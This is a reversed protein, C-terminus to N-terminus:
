KYNEIFEKIEKDFEKKSKSKEAESLSHYTEDLYQYRSTIEGDTIYYITPFWTLELFNKIKDYYEIDELLANDKNALDRYEKVDLKVFMAKNPISINNLEEEFVTCDSCDSRGVYLIFSVKDRFCQEVEEFNKSLINNDISNQSKCSTIIFMLCFLIFIKKMKM